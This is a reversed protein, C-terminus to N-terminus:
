EIPQKICGENPKLESSNLETMENIETILIFPVFNFKSNARLVHLVRVGSLGGEPFQMDCLIVNPNIKEIKELANEPTAAPVVAYGSAKLRASIDEKTGITKSILLITGKYQDAVLDLLFKSENELYETVSVQYM